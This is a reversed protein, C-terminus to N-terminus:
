WHWWEVLHLMLFVLTACKYKFDAETKGPKASLFTSTNIEVERQEGKSINTKLFELLVLKLVVVLTVWYLVSYQAIGNARLISYWPWWVDVWFLNNSTRTQKKKVKIIKYLLYCTPKEFIKPMVLGGEEIEGWTRVCISLVFICGSILMTLKM